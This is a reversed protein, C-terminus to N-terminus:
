KNLKKLIEICNKLSNESIKDIKLKEKEKFVEELYAKLEVLMAGIECFSSNRNRFHHNLKAADYYENFEILKLVNKLYVEFFSKGFWCKEDFDIIEEYKELCEENKIQKREFCQSNEKLNCSFHTSNEYFFEFLKSYYDSKLLEALLGKALILKMVYHWIISNEKYEEIFEILKKMLSKDFDDSNSIKLIFTLFESSFGKYEKYFRFIGINIMSFDM